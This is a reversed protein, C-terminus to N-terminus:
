TELSQIPGGVGGEPRYREIKEGKGKMQKGQGGTVPEPSSPGGGGKENAERKRGKGQTLKGAPRQGKKPIRRPHGNEMESKGLATERKKKRKKRKPL